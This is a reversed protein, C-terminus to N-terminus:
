EVHKNEKKQTNYFLILDNIIDDYSDGKNGLNFLKERTTKKVRIMTDENESM